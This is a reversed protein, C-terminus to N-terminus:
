PKLAPTPGRHVSRSVCGYVTGIGTQIQVVEYLRSTCTELVRANIHSNLLVCGLIGLGTGVAVATYSQILSANDVIFDAFRDTIKM